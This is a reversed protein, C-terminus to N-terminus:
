VPMWSPWPSASPRSGPRTPKGTLSPCSASRMKWGPRGGFSAMPSCLPVLCRTRLHVGYLWGQSCLPRFIQKDAVLEAHEYLDTLCSEVWKEPDTMPDAQGIGAYGSLVCPSELAEGAYLRKLRDLHYAQVSLLQPDNLTHIISQHM